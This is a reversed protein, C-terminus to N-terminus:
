FNSVHPLFTRMLYDVHPTLEPPMVSALETEFTLARAVIYPAIGREFEGTDVRTGFYANLFEQWFLRGQEPRYHYSREMEDEPVAVLVLYSMAFDFMPNGHCFGAMDIFYFNKEDTIVNGVHLDGHLCTGAGPLSQVMDYARRKMDEDRVPNALIMNGYMDRVDPFVNVDCPTSHLKKVMDAYKAALEPIREPQEGMIRGFSRKGVIRRFMIGTRTGDTVLEGPEPTPIGLLYAERAVKLETEARKVADDGSLIKLMMSNDGRKFYSMGFMGQGTNEWQNIDITKM